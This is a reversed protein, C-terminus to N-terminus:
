QTRLALHTPHLNHRGDVGVDVVGGDGAVLVRHRLVEAYRVQGM